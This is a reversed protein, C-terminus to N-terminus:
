YIMQLISRRLVHVLSTLNVHVVVSRITAATAIYSSTIWSTTTHIRAWAGHWSLKM